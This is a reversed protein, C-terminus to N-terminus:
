DDDYDGGILPETPEYFLPGAEALYMAGYRLSDMGHDYLKVPVDKVPKGDQSKPWTYADFEQETCTPLRREALSEDREVMADRFLFLRPRGDGAKALRGQVEGIGPLIEKRAPVSFIGSEDLTARDEADHDTITSEYTEGASLQNIQAAHVRVTRGTMYIERYLYMRGDGDIAWWQCVFPHTWGFDIVRIRRWDAPIPFPDVLHLAADFDYVAGEAQVWRGFRLREKRVGTLADLVAMSRRGQKTLYGTATYLMPNDEHRSEFLKLTARNRIWHSPGGPNCDGFTMGGWDVHGARGTTRTTLTEWDPLMLEEAQNVYIGDFEASLVKGPKDLGGVWIRAGNSYDFWELIEQVSFTTPQGLAGEEKQMRKLISYGCGRSVDKGAVMRPLFEGIEFFIRSLAAERTSALVRTENSLHSSLINRKSCRGKERLFSSTTGGTQLLRNAYFCWDPIPAYRENCHQYLSIGPRSRHAFSVSSMEEGLYKRVEYGIIGFSQRPVFDAVLEIVKLRTPNQLRERRSQYHGVYMITFM